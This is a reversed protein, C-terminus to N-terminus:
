NGLTTLTVRGFRPHLPAQAGNAPAFLLQDLFEAAAVRTRAIGPFAKLRQQRLLPRNRRTQAPPNNARSIARGRARAPAFSRWGDLWIQSSAPADRRPPEDHINTEQRRPPPQRAAGIAAQEARSIIERAVGVHRLHKALGQPHLDAPELRMQRHRAAELHLRAPAPKRVADAPEDVVRALRDGAGEAEGGQDALAAHGDALDRGAARAGDEVAVGPLDDGLRVRRSGPDPVSHEAATPPSRRPQHGLPAFPPFTTFTMPFRPPDGRGAGLGAGRGHSWLRGAGAASDLRPDA